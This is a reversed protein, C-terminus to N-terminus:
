FVSFTLKKLQRFNSRENLGKLQYLTNGRTKIISQSVGFNLGTAYKHRAWRGNPPDRACDLPRAGIGKQQPYRSKTLIVVNKFM